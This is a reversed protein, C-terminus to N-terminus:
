ELIKKIKKIRNEFIMRNLSIIKNFNDNGVENGNFVIKNNFAYEFNEMIHEFETLNTYTEINNLVRLVNEKVYLLYQTQEKTLFGDEFTEFYEIYLKYNELQKLRKKM